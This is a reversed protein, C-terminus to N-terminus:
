YTALMAFEVTYLWCYVILPVIDLKPLCLASHFLCITEDDRDYSKWFKVLQIHLYVLLTTSALDQKTALFATFMDKSLKM